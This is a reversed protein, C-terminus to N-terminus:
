VEENSKGEAMRKQQWKRFRIFLERDYQPERHIQNPKYSDNYARLEREMEAFIKEENKKIKMKKM